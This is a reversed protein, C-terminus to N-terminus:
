FIGGFRSADTPGGWGGNGLSGSAAASAAAAAASGMNGPNGAGSYGPGAGPGTPGVPGTRSRGPNGSSGGSGAGAGSPGTPGAPGSPQGGSTGGGYGGGRGASPGSPGSISPGSPQGGPGGFGGGSGGSPGGMPGGRGFPDGGLGGFVGGGGLANTGQQGLSLGLANGIAPNAMAYDAIQQDRLGKVAKSPKGNMNSYSKSVDIAALQNALSPTTLAMAIAKSYKPGVSKVSGQFADNFSELGPAFASAKTSPLGIAPTGSMAAMSLGPMGQQAAAQTASPSGIGGFSGTAAGFNEAASTDSPGFAGPSAIGLASSAAPSVDAVSTTPDSQFGFSDASTVPGLPTALGLTSPPSGMGPLAGFQPAHTPSNLTSMDVDHTLPSFGQPTAAAAIASAKRGMSSASALGQLGANLSKTAARGKAAASAAAANNPDSLSAWGGAAVSAMLDAKEQDSLAAGLAAPSISMDAAPAAPATTAAAPAATFGREFAPTGEDAPATGFGFADSLSGWADRVAEDIGYPNAIADPAATTAPLGQADVNPLSMEPVNKDWGPYQADLDSTSVVSADVYGPAQPAMALGMLAQAVKGRAGIGADAYSANAPAAPAGMGQMGGMGFDGSLPSPASPRTAESPSPVGGGYLGLGGGDMASGQAVDTGASQIGSLLGSPDKAWSGDPGKQAVGVDNGAVGIPDGAQVTDGSKVTGKALGGIVTYTGDESKVIATGRYSRFDGHVGVVTGSVPSTITSGPKTATVTYGTRSHTGRATGGAKGTPSSGAVGSAISALGGQGFSEKGGGVAAPARSLEATQGEFGNAMHTKMVGKAWGPISSHSHNPGWGRRNALDIHIATHYVGVGKFGMSSALSILAKRDEISMDKVSIDVANGHLHQSKKAGGAKKNSAKDRFTSNLSLPAGWAKQLALFGTKMKDNLGDWNANNGYTKGLADTESEKGYSKAFDILSQGM